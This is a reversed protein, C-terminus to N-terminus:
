LGSAERTLSLKTIYLRPRHAVQVPTNISLNNIGKGRLVPMVSGM